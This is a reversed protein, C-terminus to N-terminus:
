EGLRLWANGARRAPRQATRRQRPPPGHANSTGVGAHHSHHWHYSKSCHRRFNIQTERHQAVIRTCHAPCHFCRPLPKFVQSLAKLLTATTKDMYILGGTTVGHSM